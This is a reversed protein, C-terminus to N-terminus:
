FANTILCYCNNQTYFRWLVIVQDDNNNVNDEKSSKNTDLRKQQRTRVRSVNSVQRKPKM